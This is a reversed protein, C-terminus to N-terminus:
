ELPTIKTGPTLWRPWACGFIGSLVGGEAVQVLLQALPAPRPAHPSLGAQHLSVTYAYM